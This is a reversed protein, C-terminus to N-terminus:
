DENEASNRARRISEIDLQETPQTMLGRPTAFAVTTKAKPTPPTVKIGTSIALSRKDRVMDITVTIRGKADIGFTDTDALETALKHVEALIDGGIDGGGLHSLKLPVFTLADGQPRQQERENDMHMYEEHEESM